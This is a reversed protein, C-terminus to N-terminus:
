LGVGNMPLALVAGFRGTKGKEARHSYWKRTDCATCVGAIEIQNVGSKQLTVANAQWLDFYTSSGKTIILSEFMDPFAHKVKDVVDPGVEYHDPGISPGIGAIIDEPTSNYKERMASVAHACAQDVTGQWGAHVMAIVKKAPDFLFIPVCDAFRMMLTIKSSNTLIIDAPQHKGDLPRPQSSAIATTGHVQWVDFISEVPRDIADFIRQRNEIINERQDGTTGGLNLSYWPDPSVGGSRTYLGQVLHYSALNQFYFYELGHASIFPM